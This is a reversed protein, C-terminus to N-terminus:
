SQSLDDYNDDNESTKEGANDHSLRKLDNKLDQKERKGDKLKRQNEFSKHLKTDHLRKRSM